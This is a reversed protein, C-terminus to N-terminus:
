GNDSGTAQSPSETAKLPLAHALKTVALRLQQWDPDPDPFTSLDVMCSVMHPLTEQVTRTSARVAAVQTTLTTLDTRVQDFQANRTATTWILGGVLVLFTLVPVYLNLAEFSSKM